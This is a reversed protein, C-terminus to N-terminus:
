RPPRRQVPRRGPPQTPAPRPTLPPIELELTRGPMVVVRDGHHRIELPKGDVLSYRAQRDDVEVRLSSGRFMM